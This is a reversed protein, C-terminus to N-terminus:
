RGPEKSSPSIAKLWPGVVEAYSFGLGPRLDVAEVIALAQTLDGEAAYIMAMRQWFWITDFSGDFLEARAQLFAPQLRVIQSFDKRRAAVLAIAQLAAAYNERTPALALLAPSDFEPEQALILRLAWRVMDDIRGELRASAVIRPLQARVTAWAETEAGYRRLAVILEQAVHASTPAVKAIEEVVVDVISRVPAVALALSDRLARVLVRSRDEPEQFREIASALERGDGAVVAGTAWHKLTFQLSISPSASGAFAREVLARTWEPKGLMVFWALPEGPADRDAAVTTLLKSYAQEAEELAGSALFIVAMWARSDGTVGGTREVFRQLSRAVRVSFDREGSRALQLGAAIISDTCGLSASQAAGWNEVFWSNQEWVCRFLFRWEAMWHRDEDNALDLESVLQDVRSALNRRDGRKVMEVIMQSNVHILVSRDPTARLIELATEGEGINYAWVANRVVESGGGLRCRTWQPLCGSSIWLRLQQIPGSKDVPPLNASAPSSSRPPDIQCAITLGFTNALERARDNMNSTLRLLRCREGQDLTTVAWYRQFDTTWGAHALEILASFDLEGTSRAWRQALAWLFDADGAGTESLITALRSYLERRDDKDSPAAHATVFARLRERGLELSTLRPRELKIEIPATQASAPRSCVWAQGVILALILLLGSRLRMTGPHLTEVYALM